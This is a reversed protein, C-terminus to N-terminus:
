DAYRTETGGDFSFGLFVEDVSPSPVVGPPSDVAPKSTFEDDFNSVDDESKLSPQFPPPQSKKLVQEWDVGTFFRHNKVSEADKPGYGLRKKVNRNLLRQLIDKANPTLYKKLQLKGKIVRDTIIKRNTGTFPPAGTLMDHILIGFSWWDVEKGHRSIIVAVNIILSLYLSVPM